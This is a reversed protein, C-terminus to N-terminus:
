VKFYVKIRHLYGALVMWFPIYLCICWVLIDTSSSPVRDSRTPVFAAAPGADDDNMGWFAGTPYVLNYLSNDRDDWYFMNLACQTMDTCSLVYILISNLGLWRFPTAVVSVVGALGWGGDPGTAGSVGGDLAISIATLVLGCIANSVLLFSLSYLNPNLPVGALVCALGLLMQVASSLAWNSLRDVASDKHALAMAGVHAGFLAACVCTLSSVLGEPDFARGGKDSMYGCYEPADAPPACRGPHCSSCAETRQFTMEKEEWNGGNYPFYMHRKGLIQM